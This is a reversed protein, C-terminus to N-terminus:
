SFATALSRNELKEASLRYNRPCAPEIADIQTAPKAPLKGLGM